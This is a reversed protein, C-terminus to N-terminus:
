LRNSQGVKLQQASELSGVPDDGIHFRVPFQEFKHPILQQVLQCMAILGPCAIRQAPNEALNPRTRPVFHGPHHVLDGASELATLIQFYKALFPLKIRLLLDDDEEGGDHVTKKQFILLQFKKYNSFM